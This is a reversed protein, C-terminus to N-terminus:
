IKFISEGEKYSRVGFELSQVQMAKKVAEMNKRMEGIPAPYITPLIAVTGARSHLEAIKLIDEPNATKTDFKGIGHTHVDVFGKTQMLEKEILYYSM